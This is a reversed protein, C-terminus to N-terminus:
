IFVWAQEIPYNKGFTNAGLYNKYLTFNIIVIYIESTRTLYSYSSIHEKLSNINQINLGKLKIAFEVHENDAFHFLIPQEGINEKFWPKIFRYFNDRSGYFNIIKTVRLELDNCTGTNIILIDNKNRHM